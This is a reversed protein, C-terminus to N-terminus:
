PTFAAVYIDQGAGASLLTTGGFSISTFFDGTAILADNDAAIARGQQEGGAFTASWMHDGNTGDLKAFFARTGGVSPNTLTPGGLSLNGTFLGTLLVDGSDTLDVGRTSGGGDAIGWVYDGNPDLKIVYVNHGSDGLVENEAFEYAGELRGGIVVGTSDVAVANATQGGSNGYRKAWITDGNAGDLKAAFVDLEGTSSLEVAGLTLDGYFHGVVVPHGSPDVAVDYLCPSYPSNCIDFLADYAKSWICSGDAAALKAVFLAGSGGAVHPSCGFDVNGFFRGIAIVNDDDDVAVAHTRDDSAAGFRKSWKPAGDFDFRAVFGDFWGFAPLPDGGFSIEFDDVRGGIAVGGDSTVAVSYGIDEGATGFGKSWQHVGLADFAAVYIDASGVAAKTGGGFDITTRFMGVLATTGSAGADVDHVGDDSSDGFRQFWGDCSGSGNCAGACEDDPDTGASHFACEGQANCRECEDSCATECCVGDTCQSSDCELDASCPTGNAWTNAGGRGGISVTSGGAAGGGGQSPARSTSGTSDQGSPDGNREVAEEIGLALACGSLTVATLLLARPATTVPPRRCAM